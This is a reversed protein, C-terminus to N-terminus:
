SPAEGKQTSAILTVNVIGKLISLNNGTETVWYAADGLGVVDVPVANYATQVQQKGSTFVAQARALDGNSPVTVILSATDLATGVTVKYECSDVSFTKSGTVSHTPDDVAKGPIQEADAKTLLTCADIKVGAPALVLALMSPQVSTQGFPQVAPTSSGCGALSLLLIILVLPNAILIVKKAHFGSRKKLKSQLSVLSSLQIIDNEM